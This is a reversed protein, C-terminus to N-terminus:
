KGYPSSGFGKSPKDSQNIIGKSSNFLQSIGTLALIFTGLIILFERRDVEKELLRSINEKM